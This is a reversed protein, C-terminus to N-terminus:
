MEDEPSWNDYYVFALTRADDKILSIPPAERLEGSYARAQIEVALRMYIEAAMEEQTM